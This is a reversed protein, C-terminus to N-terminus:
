GECFVVGKEMGFNKLTEMDWRERMAKEMDSLGELSGVMSVGALHGDAFCFTM